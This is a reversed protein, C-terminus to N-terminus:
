QASCLSRLYHRFRPKRLLLFLPKRYRSTQEGSPHFHTSIPSISTETPIVTTYFTGIRSITVTPTVTGTINVVQITGYLSAQNALADTLTPDIGLAKDFSDLADSPRGMLVLVKERTMGCRPTRQPSARGRPIHRSAQPYNGQGVYARGLSDWAMFNTPDLTTCHTYAGVADSSDNVMMYAAGQNCYADAHNAQLTFCPITHM